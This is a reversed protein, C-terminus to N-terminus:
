FQRYFDDEKQNIRIPEWYSPKKYDINLEILKEKKFIIFIRTIGVGFFYVFTLLISNIISSIDEGFYKSGEKIYSFLDKIMKVVMQHM